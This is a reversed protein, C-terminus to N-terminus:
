MMDCGGDSVLRIQWSACHCHVRSCSDSNGLVMAIMMMLLLLLLLLLVTVMLLNIMVVMMIRCSRSTVEEAAGVM